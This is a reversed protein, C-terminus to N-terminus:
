EYYERKFILRHHLITVLEWGERGMENLTDPLKWSNDIMTDKYEFRKRPEATGTSAECEPCLYSAGEKGAEEAEAMDLMFAVGCEECKVEIEM